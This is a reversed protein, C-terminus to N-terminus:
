RTFQQTQERSTEIKQAVQYKKAFISHKNFTFCIKDETEKWKRFYTKNQSMQIKCIVNGNM